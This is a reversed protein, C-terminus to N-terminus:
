LMAPHRLPLSAVDPFLGVRETAAALAALLAFTDLFRRQYPHDQIGVLDLGARDAALVQRVIDPFSDALPVVSIGFRLPPRARSLPTQGNPLQSGGGSEDM